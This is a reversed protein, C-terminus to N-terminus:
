EVETFEIVEASGFDTDYGYDLDESADYIAKATDLSDAEIYAVAYTILREKVMFLPM